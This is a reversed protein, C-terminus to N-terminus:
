KEVKWIRKGNRIVWKGKTGPKITHGKGFEYLQPKDKNLHRIRRKKEEKDAHWGKYQEFTQELIALGKASFQGLRKRIAQIDEAEKKRLGGQMKISDRITKNLRTGGTPKGTWSTDGTFFGKTPMQVGKVADIVRNPIGYLEKQLERKPLGARIADEEAANKGAQSKQLKIQSSILRASNALEGAREGPVHERPQPTSAGAGGTASLVPNLGAARLDAVERRHASSSMREAFNRQRDSSKKASFASYVAAGGTILAAGMGIFFIM